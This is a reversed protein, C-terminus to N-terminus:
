ILLFALHSVTKWRNVCSSVTKPGGRGESGELEALVFPWVVAKWGSGAQHGESQQDALVSVLTADNEPSWVANKLPKPNAKPLLPSQNEKNSKSKVM